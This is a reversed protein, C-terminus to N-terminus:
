RLQNMCVATATISVEGVVHSGQFFFALWYSVAAEAILNTLLQVYYSVVACQSVAYNYFSGEGNYVLAHCSTSHCFSLDCSFVKGFFFVLSTVVNSPESKNTRNFVPGHTLM